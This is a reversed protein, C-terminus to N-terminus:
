REGLAKRIQDLHSDEHEVMYPISARITRAPWEPWKIPRDLDEEQLEGFVEVLSERAEQLEKRCRALDWKQARSAADENFLDRDEVSMHIVEDQAASRIFFCEGLEAAALHGIIHRVTWGSDEDVKELDAETLGGVLELTEERQGDLPTLLDRPAMGEIM